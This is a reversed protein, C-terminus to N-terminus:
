TCLIVFYRFILSYSVTIKGISSHPHSVHDRV